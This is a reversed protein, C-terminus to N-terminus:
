THLSHIPPTTLYALHVANKNSSYIFNTFWFNHAFNYKLNKKHAVFKLPAYSLWNKTKKMFKKIIVYTKYLSIWVYLILKTANTFWFNHAFNHKLIKKPVIFKLLTYRWAIGSWQFAVGSCHWKLVIDSWHLAVRICHLAIDSWHLFPSLLQIVLHDEVFINTYFISLWVEM